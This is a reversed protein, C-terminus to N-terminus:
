GLFLCNEQYDRLERQERIYSESNKDIENTKNSSSFSLIKEIGKNRFNRQEDSKKASSSGTMNFRGSYVETPYLVLAGGLIVSVPYVVWGRKM